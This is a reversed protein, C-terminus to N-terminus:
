KETKGVLIRYESLHTSCAEDIDDDKIPDSPYQTIHLLQANRDVGEQEEAGQRLSDTQLV